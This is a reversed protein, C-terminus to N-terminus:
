TAQVMQVVKTEEAVSPEVLIKTVIPGAAESSNNSITM